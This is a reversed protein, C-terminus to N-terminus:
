CDPCWCMPGMPGWDAASNDRIPGTDLVRKWISAEVFALETAAAAAAARSEPVVPMDCLPLLPVGPAFVAPLLLLM